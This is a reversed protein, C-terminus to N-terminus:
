VQTGGAELTLSYRLIEEPSFHPRRRSNVVRSDQNERIDFHIHFGLKEETM